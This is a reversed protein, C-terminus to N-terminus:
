AKKPQLPNPWTYFADTADYAKINTHKKKQLVRQRNQEHIGPSPVFPIRFLMWQGALM